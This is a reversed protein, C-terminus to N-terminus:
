EMVEAAAQPMAGQFSPRKMLWIVLISPLSVYFMFLFDNQFGIVQSRFEIL